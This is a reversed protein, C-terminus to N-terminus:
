LTQYRRDATFNIVCISFVSLVISQRAGAGNTKMVVTGAPCRRINIEINGGSPVWQDAQGDGCVDSGSDEERRGWTAETSRTM